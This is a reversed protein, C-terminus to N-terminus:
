GGQSTGNSKEWLSLARRSLCNPGQSWSSRKRRVRLSMVGLTGRLRLLREKSAEVDILMGDVVLWGRSKWNSVTSNAVHMYEAFQKARMFTPTM